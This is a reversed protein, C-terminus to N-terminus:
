FKRECSIEVSASFFLVEVEVTLTARGACKGSSFEYTLEMRLEISASILGLVDVEGGIRLYGTLSANGAEIKFYIGAMIHVSGSAVGFDLALCAGFEFSAELIQVGHPDLTIGFFGGGGLMSVTLLFPSERQCFNFYVSLPDGIFPITFGAGLSLNQMSFMGMALDPLAISFSAHIGSASVDIAPPDSFGDLPILSRLTEVFSLVGVFKIGGMEVNVDAKKATGALFQIKKFSLQIFSAPAILDLTFNELSCIIDAVPASKGDTKVRVEIGILLTCATSGNKAIFLPPAGSVLSWDKMAPKWDFKVKIEKPLETPIAGAFAKVDNIFSAADNLYHNFNAINKQLERKAGDAINAGPLGNGLTAFDNSFTSLDSSLKALKGDITDFPPKLIDPMDTEIITKADNILADVTTQLGGVSGSISKLTNQFNQVEVLFAEISNLAETVFKPVLDLKDLLKGPDVGGIIDFLNICGFLQPSLGAFFDKPDFGGAAIKAADGAVPGMVRSLGSIQMNPTVLAGSKDGQNSFNLNIGSGPVFKGFLQGSNNVADNLGFKLYEAAYEIEGPDHNNAIHKLSPIILEAKRVAPYFHPSDGGLHSMELDSPIEAGFTMTRTEFTTDGPKASDALMIKQGLLDRKRRDSVSGNELDNRAVQMTGGNKAANQDAFLLPTTFEIENGEFDEAVLHFQFDKNLVRPWFLSQLQPIGSVVLDSTQPDDLNPTILTTIRVRRFPMQRDYAHGAPTQLGTDGYTKEPERVIIFMRQRLYATNGPLNNHFKRETVKVLSARHGFPFLYGKYVVRVYHDRGMTGRQRWEEVTLPNPPEWVGRSNIWAGMSSLMLREVNVPNPEYIGRTTRGNIAPLSITYNSSLHVINYRDDADLTMRFPSNAHAPPPAGDVFEPDLAWIARVTRLAESQEDVGDKRRVGLRTHWLETRKAKKSTVPLQAHAWAGFINPSLILLYPLELATESDGPARPKPPRASVGNNLDLIKKIALNERQVAIPDKGPMITTFNIRSQQIVKLASSMRVPKVSAKDITAAVLYKNPIISFDIALKPPLAHPVVSMDYQGCKELISKLTYPIPDIKDPVRFVLRSPGAIRAKVPPGTPDDKPEGKDTVEPTPAPPPPVYTNKVPFGNGATDAATEFFAQEAINQPQLHVVIYSPRVANDRLLGPGGTDLTLNIFELRLVLLDEPRLVVTSFRGRLNLQGLTEPRISIVGTPPKEFAPTSTPTPSEIQRPPIIIPTETPTPTSRPRPTPRPIVVPGIRIGPTPAPTPTPQSQPPTRGVPPRRTPAPTPTPTPQQIVNPPIRIPGIRRPAPTPTPTPTPSPRQQPDFEAASAKEDFETDFILRSGEPCPMPQVVAGAMHVAASRLAPACHLKNFRGDRSALAFPTEGPTDGLEVVYNQSQLWIPDRGFQALLVREHRQQDFTAALMASRLPLSFEEGFVSKFEGSPQFSLRSDDGLPEAVLAQLLAGNRSEGAEIHIADFPDGSLKLQAGPPLATAEAIQWQRWDHDGRKLSVLTRKAAPQELFSADDPELLAITLSDSLIKQNLGLVRALKTGHLETVWGPDFRARAAGRTIVRGAQGLGCVTGDLRVASTAAENGALWKEFPVAAQFDGLAMRLRMRWHKGSLNLDCTLDAPLKTGPYTAGALQFRVRTENRDITLKPRGGFRQPDIVWREEGGLLFALRKEDGTIELPGAQTRGLKKLQTAAGLAATGTLGLFERRTFNKKRALIVLQRARLGFFNIQLRKM